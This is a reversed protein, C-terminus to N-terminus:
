SAGALVSPVRMKAEGRARERPVADCFADIREIVGSDSVASGVRLALARLAM